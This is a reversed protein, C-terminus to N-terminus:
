LGDNVVQIAENNVMYGYGELEKLTVLDVNPIACRVFEDSDNTVGDTNREACKQKRENTEDPNLQLRFEFYETPGCNGQACQKKYDDINICLGHHWITLTRNDSLAIERKMEKDGYWVEYWDGAPCFSGQYDCMATENVNIQDKGTGIQFQVQIMSVSNEKPFVRLNKSNECTNNLAQQQLSVCGTLAILVLFAAINKM